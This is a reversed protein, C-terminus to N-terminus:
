YRWEARLFGGQFTVNGKSQFEAEAVNWWEEYIYGASFRLGENWPPTYNVGFQINLTPAPQTQAQRGVGNVPAGGPITISETFSQHIESILLASEARMFLGWGPAEAFRRTLDLGVHPGAGVLNNSTRQLLEPSVAQSDFFVSSVQAGVRWKMDWLPGLSFERGALDLNFSNLALRSNVNGPNGAADFAPLVENGSTTLFRYSM